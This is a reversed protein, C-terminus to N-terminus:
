NAEGLYQEDSVVRGNWYLRTDTLFSREFLDFAEGFDAKWDDTRAVRAAVIREFEGDPRCRVIEAVRDSELTWPVITTRSGDHELALTFARLINVGRAVIEEHNGRDLLLTNTKKM